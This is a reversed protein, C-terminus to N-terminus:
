EGMLNLLAEFARLVLVWSAVAATVILVLWGVREIFKGWSRGRRSLGDGRRNYHSM